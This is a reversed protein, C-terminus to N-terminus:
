CHRKYSLILDTMGEICESSCNPGEFNNVIRTDNLVEAFFSIVEKRDHGQNHILDNISIRMQSFDSAKIVSSIKNYHVDGFTMVSQNLALAELGATGSIVAVGKSFNIMDFTDISQDVFEVGPLESIEKYFGLDRRGTSVRHEKVLLKVNHPLVRSISKLIEYQNHIWRGLILTGAEPHLHLPWYIFKSNKFEEINNFKIVGKLERFSLKRKIFNIISIIIGNSLSIYKSKSIFKIKFLEYLTKFHTFSVGSKIMLNEFNAYNPQIKNQFTEDIIREVEELSPGQKNLKVPGSLLSDALYLHESVRAVMPYLFPIGLSKSLLFTGYTVGDSICSCFVMDIQNIKIHKELSSLYKYYLLKLDEEALVGRFLKNKALIENFCLSHKTEFDKLDNITSSKAEDILFDLTVSNKNASSENHVLFLFYSEISSDAKHLSESLALFQADGNVPFFLIKQM